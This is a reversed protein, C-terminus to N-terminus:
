GCSSRRRSRRAGGGRRAGRPGRGRGGLRRRRGRRAADRRGCTWWRSTSAGCRCGWRRSARRSSRRACGPPRTRWTWASGPSWPSRSTSPRTRGPSRRHPLQPRADRGHRRRRRAAGDAAAARALRNPGLPSDLRLAEEPRIRSRATELVRGLVAEVAQAPMQVPEEAMRHVAVDLQRAEAYAASCHPCDRGHADLPLGAEARDWVLAADRGCALPAIEGMSPVETMEMGADGGGASRAGPPHSRARGDGRCRHDGRDRRLGARGAGAAGLVGAPQGPSGAGRPGARGTGPRAPGVTRAFRRAAVDDGADPAPVPRRRRLAAICRNTVLRYLWTSFAADGRFRDLHRWADLLAEQLADEAEAPDGTVRVATRYLAAQHRRALAEFARM